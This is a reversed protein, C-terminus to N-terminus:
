AARGLHEDRPRAPIQPEAAVVQHYQTPSHGALPEPRQDPHKLVLWIPIGVWAGFFAAALPVNLWFWNM